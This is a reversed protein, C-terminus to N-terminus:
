HTTKISLSMGASVELWHELSMVRPAKWVQTKDHIIVGLRNVPCCYVDTLILQNNEIADRFPAINILPPLM